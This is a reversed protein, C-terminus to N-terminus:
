YHTAHAAKLTLGAEFGRALEDLSAHIQDRNRLLDETAGFLGDPQSELSTM